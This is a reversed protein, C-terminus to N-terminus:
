REQRCERDVLADPVEVVSSGLGQNTLQHTRAVYIAFYINHELIKASVEIKDSLAEYV